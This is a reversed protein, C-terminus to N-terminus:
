RMGEWFSCPNVPNGDEDKQNELCSANDSKLSGPLDSGRTQFYRGILYIMYQDLNFPKTPASLFIGHRDESKMAFDYVMINPLRMGSKQGKGGNRSELGPTVFTKRFYKTDYSNGAGAQEYAPEDMLHPENLVHLDCENGPYTPSPYKNRNCDDDYDREGDGSDNAGLNDPDFYDGLGQNSFRHIRPIAEPLWHKVMVQNETDGAYAEQPTQYDLIRAARNLTLGTGIPVKMDGLTHNILAAKPKMGPLPDWFYHPAYNAPDAPDLIMQSLGMMRRLDPSNRKYGYGKGISRTEAEWVKENTQGDFVEVQLLDGKDAPINVRFGTIERGGDKGFSIVGGVSEEGNVLNRVVIRDGLKLTGPMKSIPWIKELNGDLADFALMWDGDEVGNFGDDDLCVDYYTWRRCMDGKTGGILMPGMVELYVAERVGENSTRMGIDMLGAGGSIPAIATMAPEVAQLLSVIFAGMSQGMGSYNQRRDDDPDDPDTCSTLDPVCDPDEASCATYDPACLGGIDVIGDANFDGAKEPVGDGNVDFAWRRVGDFSRLLRLSQLYDVVAQRVIDRTHFSRATWFDVGSDRVGDGTQDIARGSLFAGQFLPTETFQVVMCKAPCEGPERCTKAKPDDNKWERTCFDYLQNPDDISPDYTDVLDALMRLVLGKLPGLMNLIEDLSMQEGNIEALKDLVNVLDELEGSPGHGTEDIAFTALGFRALHCAFGLAEFKAGSYGHGYFAVPFPPDPYWSAVPPELDKRSKPVTLWFPVQEGKVRARGSNVDLDFNSDPGDLFNPVTFWGVVFYDVYDLNTSILTEIMPILDSMNIWSFTMATMVISFLQEMAAPRIIYTNPGRGEGACDGLECVGHDLIADLEPPFREALYAMSGRGKLGDRITELTETITQTTFCWAFALDQLALPNEPLSPLLGKLALLQKTQAAHNIYPFPSRIPNGDIDRLGRTLVVAYTTRQDMAVLPRLILTNTQYEFNTVLKNDLVKEPANEDWENYPPVDPDPCVEPYPSVWAGDTGRSFCARNYCSAYAINPHDLVGDFDRDEGPDMEGDCDKDEENGEMMLNNVHWHSDFHFYGFDMLGPGPHQESNETGEIILPFATWDPHDSSLEPLDHPPFDMPIEEGYRPSDPDINILRINEARVTRLDLPREFSVTIPSFTGFGDLGNLNNRVDQELLTPAHMRINLRRGTRSAPDMTTAIDNPFPIEPMPHALPDFKIRTGGPDQVVELGEGLPSEVDQGSLCSSIWCLLSLLFLGCVTKRWSPCSESRKLV